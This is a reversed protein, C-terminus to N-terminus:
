KISHHEIKRSAKGIRRGIEKETLIIGSSLDGDVVETDMQGVSCAKKGCDGRFEM